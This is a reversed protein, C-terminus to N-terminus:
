AAAEDLHDGVSNFLSGPVQKTANLIEQAIHDCDIHRCGLLTPQFFHRCGCPSQQEVAHDFMPAVVGHEMGRNGFGRALRRRCHWAFSADAQGGLLWQVPVLDSQGIHHAM